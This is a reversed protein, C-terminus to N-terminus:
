PSVGTLGLERPGTETAGAHARAPAGIVPGASAATMTGAAMGVETWGEAGGALAEALKELDSDDIVYRIEIARPDEREADSLEAWVRPAFLRPADVPPGALFASPERSVLTEVPAVRELLPALDAAVNAAMASERECVLVPGHGGSAQVRDLVRGRVSPDPHIAVFHVGALRDPWRRRLDGSHFYTAVIRGPPLADPYELSWARADAGTRRRVQEALDRAQIESCEVVWVPDSVGVSRARVLRGLELPTVGWREAAERVILSVYDDISGDPTWGRAAGADRAPSEAEPARGVVVTGAGRRTEVAGRTALDVYAKRVTHLNIGWEEAAERLSPLRDGARLDGTAIRYEVARVVQHYLPVASEPDLRTRM